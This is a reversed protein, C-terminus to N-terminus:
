SPKGGRRRMVLVAVVAVAAAGGAGAIIYTTPFGEGFPTLTVTPADDVTEICPVAAGTFWLGQYEPQNPWFNIQAVVNQDALDM